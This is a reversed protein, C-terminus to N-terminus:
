MLDLVDLRSERSRAEATQGESRTSTGDESGTRSPGTDIRLAV